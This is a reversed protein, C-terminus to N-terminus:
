IYYVADAFITAAAATDSAAHLLSKNFFPAIWQCLFPIV